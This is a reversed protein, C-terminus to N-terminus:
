ANVFRLHTNIRWFTAIGAFTAIATTAWETFMAPSNGGMLVVLVGIIIGGGFCLLVIKIFIPLSLCTVRAIYDSGKNGKNTKFTISIGFIIIGVSLIQEVLLPLTFPRSSITLFITVIVSYVLYYKMKDHETLNNNKIDTALKKTNWIYM